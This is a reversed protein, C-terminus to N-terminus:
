ELILDMWKKGKEWKFQLRGLFIRTVLNEIDKQGLLWARAEKVKDEPIGSGIKWRELTKDIQEVSWDYDSLAAQRRLEAEMSRVVEAAETYTAFCLDTRICATSPADYVDRPYKCVITYGDNTIDAEVQMAKNQLHPRVLLGLKIGRLLDDPNAICINQESMQESIKADHTVQCLDTDYTWGHPLKKRRQNFKFDKIPVGQVLRDDALEYMDLGYGDSYYDRVIGWEVKQSYLRVFYVVQGIAFEKPNLESM